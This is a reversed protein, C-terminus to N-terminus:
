PRMTGARIQAPVFKPKTSLNAPPQQTSNGIARLQVGEITGFPVILGDVEHKFTEARQPSGIALGINLSGIQFRRDGIKEGALVVVRDLDDGEVGGLMPGFIDRFIKRGLDHAKQTNGTVLQRIRKRVEDVLV